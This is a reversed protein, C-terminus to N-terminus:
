CPGQHGNGAVMPSDFDGRPHNKKGRVLSHRHWFAPTGARRKYAGTSERAGIILRSFAISAMGTLTPADRKGGM